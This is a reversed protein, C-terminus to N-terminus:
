ASSSVGSEVQRRKGVVLAAVIENHDTVDRAVRQTHLKRGGGLTESLEAVDGTRPVSPCAAGGVILWAM